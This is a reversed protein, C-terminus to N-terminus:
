DKRKKLVYVTSVAIILGALTLYPALIKLSNIPIVVGGVPAPEVQQIRVEVTQPEVLVQEGDKLTIGNNSAILSSVTITAPGERLCHFRIRFWAADETWSSGQGIGGWILM